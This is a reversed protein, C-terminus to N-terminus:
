RNDLLVNVYTSDSNGSVITDYNKFTGNLLSDVDEFILKYNSAFRTYISFEGNQNTTDLLNLGDLTVKIGSIPLGSVRSAVKGELHVDPGMDRDTGYCAQFIFAATTLSLGGLLKRFWKNKM